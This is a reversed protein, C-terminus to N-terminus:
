KEAAVENEITAKLGPYEFLRPDQADYRIKFNPVFNHGCDCLHPNREVLLVIKETLCTAEGSTKSGCYFYDPILYDTM